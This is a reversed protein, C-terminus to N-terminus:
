SVIFGSTRVAIIMVVLGFLQFGAMVAFLVLLPHLCVSEGVIKPMIAPLFIIGFVLLVLLPMRFKRNFLALAIFMPFFAIWAGRTLTRIFCFFALALFAVPVFLFFSVPGPM